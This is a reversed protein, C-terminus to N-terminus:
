TAEAALRAIRDAVSVWSWEREATRRVAQSLVAWEEAPLELLAALTRRLDAVDQPAFSALHRHEPPYAAELREAIEALGSHRAVLPPCGCSAAEAAVMGFAEPFVSPTVAVHALPWLHALHRHELPGTFLVDPGAADELAPRAPGFGVIVARADLPALAELLLPVGKEESLKGVYLVTPREEAFFAAFREANDDDPRREDRDDPSNPPDHRSEEILAALAPEPEEPRLADTAVGPPVVEIREAYPGTGVVEDLVDVIHESGAVVAHAASLSERAWGALEDDGRIAYELESGHAKVVFSAGAAAGVAAGLLVHNTLVLDAPLESRVAQANVEVFREREAAPMEGLLVPELDPYDDLVFVPLRGELAPRQVRAGALDYRSPDPDQCLVVVDHGQESWTRALSRTYVNSGTGDLLYGHWMVIRM